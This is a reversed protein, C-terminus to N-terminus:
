DCRDWCFDIRRYFTRIIEWSNIYRCRSVTWQATSDAKWLRADVCYDISLSFRDLKSLKSTLYHIFDISDTCRYTRELFSSHRRRSPDISNNSISESIKFGGTSSNTRNSALSLYGQKIGSLTYAVNLGVQFRIKVVDIPQLLFRSVFGSTSSALLIQSNTLNKKGPDYGVM